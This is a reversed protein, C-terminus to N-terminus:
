FSKQIVTKSYDLKCFVFGTSEAEVMLNSRSGKEIIKIGRTNKQMTVPAVINMPTFRYQNKKDKM